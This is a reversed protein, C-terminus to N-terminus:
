IFCTSRNRRHSYFLMHFVWDIASFPFSLFPEGGHREGASSQPLIKVCFRLVSLLLLYWAFGCQHFFVWIHVRNGLSIASSWSRDMNRLSIAGALLTQSCKGQMHEPELQTETAQLCSVTHTHWRSLCKQINISNLTDAILQSSTTAWWFSTKVALASPYESSRQLTTHALPHTLVPHESLWAMTLTLHPATDDRGRRTCVRCCATGLAQASLLLQPWSEPAFPCPSFQHSCPPHPTKHQPESQQLQRKQSPVERLGWWWPFSPWQQWLLWLTLKWKPLAAAQCWQESPQAKAALNHWHKWVAGAGPEDYWHIMGLGGPARSMPAAADRQLATATTGFSGRQVPRQSLYEATKNCLQSGVATYFSYFQMPLLNSCPKHTQSLVVHWPQESPNHVAPCSKSWRGVGGPSCKRELCKWYCFPVKQWLYRVGTCGCQKQSVLSFAKNKGGPSAM